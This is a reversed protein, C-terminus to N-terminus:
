ADKIVLVSVSSHDLVKSSVSGLLTRSFAGLGRNGMIILDYNNKKAYDVIQNAPRGEKYVTDVSYPYDKIAEKMEELIKKANELNAKQIETTYPFSSGPFPIRDFAEDEPIVIFLTIDADFKKGYEAAKEVISKSMKSGDVPVLVKM